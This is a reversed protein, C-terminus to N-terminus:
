VIVKGWPLLETKSRKTNGAGGFLCTEMCSRLIVVCLSSWYFRVPYLLHSHNSGPFPNVEIVLCCLSSDSSAWAELSSHRDTGPLYCSPTLGTFQALHSIPFRFHRGQGLPRGVAWHWPSIHTWYQCSKPIKVPYFFIQKRVHLRIKLSQGSIWLNFCYM